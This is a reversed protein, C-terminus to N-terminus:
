NAPPDIQFTPETEDFEGFKVIEEEEGGADERDNGVSWIIGRARSYRVPKGDFPDVPVAEIFRPVLDALSEPLERTGGRDARWSRIALIRTSRIRWETSGSTPNIM